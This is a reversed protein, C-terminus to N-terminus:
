LFTLLGKLVVGYICKKESFSNHVIPFFRGSSLTNAPVSLVDKCINPIYEQGCLHSELPQSCAEVDICLM